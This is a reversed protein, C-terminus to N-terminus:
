NRQDSRSSEEHSRLLKLASVASEQGRCDEKNGPDDGGDALADDAQAELIGRDM